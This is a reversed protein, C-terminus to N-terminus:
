DHWELVNLEGRYPWDAAVTVFGHRAPNNEVYSWKEDYSEGVRLQRDWYETQWIPIEARNPWGRTVYNKLEEAAATSFHQTRL